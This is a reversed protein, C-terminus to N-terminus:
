RKGYETFVFDKAKAITHCAAGCKAGTGEPTFANSVPVYNFMGYGWGGTDAFRKSDKVMFAVDKLRDPILTNAPAEASKKPIYQIKAVKAGDPFPKGNGPIGAAYADIMVRNAVIINLIASGSMGEGGGTPHSVSVAQWAEYGRFESLALGDPVKVAYKDQALVAVGGLVALVVVTTVIAPIRKSKMEVRMKTSTANHTHPM